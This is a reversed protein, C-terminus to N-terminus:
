VPLMGRRLEAAEAERLHDEADSMCPAGGREFKLGCACWNSWIRGQFFDGLVLYHGSALRQRMTDIEVLRALAHDLKGRISEANAYGGMLVDRLRTVDPRPRALEDLCVQVTGVLNGYAFDIASASQYPSENIRHDVYQAADLANDRIRTLWDTPCPCAEPEGAATWAALCRDCVDAMGNGREVAPAGCHCAATSTLDTM